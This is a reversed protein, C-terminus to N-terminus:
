QHNLIFKSSDLIKGNKDKALVIYIGNPLDNIESISVKDDTNDYKKERVSRGILNAIEIKTIGSTVTLIKVVVSASGATYLVQILKDAPPAAYSLTNSTIGVFFFLIFLLRKL